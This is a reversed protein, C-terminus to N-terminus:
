QQTFFVINVVFEKETERYFWDFEGHYKKVIRKISKIGFGHFGDVNKTTSLTKGASIPKMDCSNSCSLVDFGNTRNISLDIRKETSKKAADVANDLINSVMTIMDPADMFALNSTRVSYIFDIKNVDCISQYKNLLLDLYKNKTNGFMSHYKIDGLVSDIYVDIEPNNALAKITALHNKEDHTIQKLSENQKDLLTYYTQDIRIRDVESQANYLEDIKTTTRGYFVFTLFVSILIFLSAASIVTILSEGPSYKVSVVWFIYLIVTTSIPYFLLFLPFRNNKKEQFHMGAYTATKTIILFVTKSLLVMLLYSSFSANYLDIAKDGVIALINIVLFEAAPDAASLFLSSFLASRMKCYFCIKVFLLNIIFYFIINIPTSRFLFFVLYAASYFLVGILVITQKKLKNTFLDSFYLLSILLELIHSIATTIYLQM